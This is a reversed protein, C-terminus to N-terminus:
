KAKRLAQVETESLYRWKGPALGSLNLSGIGVRALRIVPHGVAALMRRIQRKRGEHITLALRSQTGEKGLLRVRAPASKHRQGDDETFYVGQRLAQLTSPEPQGQVLAEYHKEQQYRPHTLQLALEGDNSLLLLGSTELDLRGIPYVRQQRLAAPLLDLVTPRGQPDHVTSLYGAPKHLLLYIHQVPAAKVVKGDVSVRDTRPDIRTGQTTVATGNVKVRGGAILEEAHRRSAIGAHALFRALREGQPSTQETDKM